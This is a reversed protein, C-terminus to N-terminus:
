SDKEDYKSTNIVLIPLTVNELCYEVFARKDIDKIHPLIFLGEKLGDIKQIFRDFNRTNYKQFVINIENKSAWKIINKKKEQFNSSDDDQLLIILAEGGDLLDRATELGVLGAPSEDFFVIMPYGLRNNEEVLLLSKEGKNILSRATSGLKQTRLTNTGAKGIILLDCEEAVKEITELVKGRLISFDGNLNTQNILKHFTRVVWRSQVLIGRTIGDTSIERVIASYEGVEQHFPMEALDLLTIDEIFVGQLTANYHQALEVATQLASFSHTSSDLSVLIREVCIPEFRDNVKM